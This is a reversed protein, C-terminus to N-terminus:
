LLMSWKLEVERREHRDFQGQVSWLKVMKDFGATLCLGGQSAVDLCQVM